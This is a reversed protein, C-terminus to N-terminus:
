EADAQALEKQSQYYMRVALASWLGIGAPVAGWLPLGVGRYLGDAVGASLIVMAFLFILHDRKMTGVLPITM